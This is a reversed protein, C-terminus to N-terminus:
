PQLEQIRRAAASKDFASPRKDAALLAMGYYQAALKAQRLHDLSVALNYLHDGNEPELRCAEFYAQQADGWRAARAYHNGLAFHLAAADPQGALLTKLRSEAQGGEGAGRLNILAAQATADNPDADVVRLYLEYARETQGRRLAIAALGLLADSNKRDHRLVQEYDRQADDLREALWAAYAQGLITEYPQAPRPQNQRLVLGAERPPLNREKGAGDVPVTITARAASSPRAPPPASGATPMSASTPAAPPDAPPSEPPRPEPPLQARSPVHQTPLSNDLAQLQWWFYGGIALGAAGLLALLAYLVVPSRAAQKAAFVNRAMERATTDSDGARRRAAGAPRSETAPPRRNQSEATAALDADVSDLHRALPPLTRQEDPPAAEIPDLSLEAPLGDAAQRSASGVQRKAEEARRLADM